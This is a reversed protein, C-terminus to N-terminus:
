CVCVRVCECVCVCVCARVCVCVYVRLYISVRSYLVCVCACVCVRVCRHYAHVLARVRELSDNVTLSRPCVETWLLESGPGWAVSAKGAGVHLSDPM